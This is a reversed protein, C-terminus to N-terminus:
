NSLINTTSYRKLRTTKGTVQDDSELAETLEEQVSLTTMNDAEDFNLRNPFVIGVPKEEQQLIREVQHQQPDSFSTCGSLMGAAMMGIVLAKTPAKDFMNSLFSYGVARHYIEPLHVFLTLNIVRHGFFHVYLWLFTKSPYQYM